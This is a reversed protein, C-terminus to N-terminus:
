GNSGRRTEKIEEVMKELEKVRSILSSSVTELARERREEIERLFDIQADVKRAKKSAAPFFMNYIRETLNPM